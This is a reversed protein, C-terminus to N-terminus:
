GQRVEPQRFVRIVGPIRISTDEMIAKHDAKDKAETADTQRPLSFYAVFFFM